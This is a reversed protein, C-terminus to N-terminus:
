QSGMLVSYNVLEKKKAKNQPFVCNGDMEQLNESIAVGAGLCIKFV